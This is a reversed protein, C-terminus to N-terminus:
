RSKRSSPFRSASIERALRTSKMMRAPSKDPLNIAPSDSFLWVKCLLTSRLLPHHSFWLTLSFDIKREKKKKQISGQDKYKKYIEELKHLQPTFGCKLASNFVLVVKITMPNKLVFFLRIPNFVKKDTMMVMMM